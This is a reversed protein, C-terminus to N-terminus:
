LVKEKIFTFFNKEKKASKIVRTKRYDCTKKQEEFSRISDRTAKLHITFSSLCKLAM